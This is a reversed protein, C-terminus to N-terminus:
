LNSFEALNLTQEDIRKGYVYRYINVLGTKENMEYIFTELSNLGDGLTVLRKVWFQSMGNERILHSSVTASASQAKYLTKFLAAKDKM